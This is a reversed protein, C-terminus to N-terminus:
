QPWHSLVFSLVIWFMCSSHRETLLSVCSCASVRKQEQTHVALEAFAVVLLWFFRPM